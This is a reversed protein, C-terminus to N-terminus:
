SVLFIGPIICVSPKGVEDCFSAEPDQSLKNTELLTSHIVSSIFYVKRLDATEM